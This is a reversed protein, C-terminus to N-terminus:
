GGPGMRGHARGPREGQVTGDLALVLPAGGRALRRGWSTATDDREVALRELVIGAAEYTRILARRNMEHGPWSLGLRSRIPPDDLMSCNVRVRLAAGPRGLGAIGELLAPDPGLVARLLSGWPLRIHIEDALGRLAPPLAEASARVFWANAAGGRSSKRGARFSAERMGAADADLAVCVWDRRARALRYIWRGDGAGLDLVVRAAAEAQARLALGDTTIIRKGRVVAITAEAM